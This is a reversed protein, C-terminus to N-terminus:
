INDDLSWSDWWGSWNNTFVLDKLVFTNIIEINVEKHIISWKKGAIM